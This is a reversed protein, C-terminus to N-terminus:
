KKMNALADQLERTMRGSTVVNQMAKMMGQVAETMEDRYKEATAQIKEKSADQYLAEKREMFDEGKTGLERIKEAADASSLSGDAVQNLVESVENTWALQDRMLKDHSDGCSVLFLAALAILLRHFHTM